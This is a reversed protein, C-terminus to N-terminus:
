QFRKYLYLILELKTKKKEQMGEFDETFQVCNLLLYIWVLPYIYLYIYIAYSAFYLWMYELRVHCLVIIHAHTHTIHQFKIM